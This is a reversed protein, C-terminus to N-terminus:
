ISKPVAIDSWKKWHMKRKSEDGEWWFMAIISTITYRKFMHSFKWHGRGQGIATM